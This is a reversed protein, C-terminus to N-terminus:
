NTDVTVIDEQLQNMQNFNMVIKVIFKQQDLIEQLKNM